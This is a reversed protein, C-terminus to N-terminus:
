PQSLDRWFYRGELEIVQAREIERPKGDWPAEEASAPRQHCIILSMKAANHEYHNECYFLESRSPQNFHEILTLSGIWKDDYIEKNKNRNIAICCYIVGVFTIVLFFCLIFGLVKM